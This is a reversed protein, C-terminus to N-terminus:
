RLRLIRFGASLEELKGRLAPIKALLVSVCGIDVVERSRPTLCTLDPASCEKSTPGCRWTEVTVACEVKGANPEICEDLVCQPVIPAPKTQSERLSVM